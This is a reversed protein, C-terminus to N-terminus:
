HSQLSGLIQRYSDLRRRSIQGASVAEEAHCGAEGNHRCDRFRCRGQLASIERFGRLLSQQDIQGPAFERVGPSDILDGGDPLHYLMTTTTTHRGRGSLASIEGTRIDHDPLLKHILSSKGTGSEGVFISVHGHLRRRLTDIGTDNVCSTMLVAYDLDEYCAFQQQADARGRDDLLDSKNAVIIANVDMNEAAILYQDLLDLNFRTATDDSGGPLPACVVVLQNINAAVPKQRGRRDPRSLLTQRDVIATIVASARDAAQWEVRDGCVAETCRKRAVASLIRGDDSEIIFNRNFRAIVRAPASRAAASM